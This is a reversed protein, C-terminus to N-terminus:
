RLHGNGQESQHGHEVAGGGALTRKKARKKKAKPFELEGMEALELAGKSEWVSPAEGVSELEPLPSEPRVYSLLPVGGTMFKTRHERVFEHEDQVLKTPIPVIALSLPEAVPEVSCDVSAFQEINYRAITGTYMIILPITSLLVNWEMYGRDNLRCGYYYLLTLIESRWILKRILITPLPQEIANTWGIEVGHYLSRLTAFKVLLDFVVKHIFDDHVNWVFLFVAVLIAIDKYHTEAHEFLMSCLHLLACCMTTDATDRSLGLVYQGLLPIGCFLLMSLDMAVKPYLKTSTFYFREREFSQFAYFALPVSVIIRLDMM